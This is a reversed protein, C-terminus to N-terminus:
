IYSIENFINFDLNLSTLFETNIIYLFDDDSIYNIHEINIDELEELLNFIKKAGLDRIKYLKNGKVTKTDGNNNLNFSRESLLMEIFSYISQRSIGLFESLELKKFRALYCYISNDYFSSRQLIFFLILNELQIKKYSIKSDKKRNRSWSNIAQLDRFSIFIGEKNKIYFKNEENIEFRKANNLVDIDIGRYNIVTKIQGNYKKRITNSTIYGKGKLNKLAKDINNKNIGTEEALTEPKKIYGKFDNLQSKKYIDSLVLKENFSLNLTTWIKYDIFIGQIKEKTEM